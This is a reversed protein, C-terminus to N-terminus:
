KEGGGGGSKYFYRWSLLAEEVCESRILDKAEEKEWDTIGVSDNGSERRSNTNWIM